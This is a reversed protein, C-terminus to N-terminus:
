TRTEYKIGIKFMGVLKDRLENILYPAVIDHYAGNNHISVRHADHCIDKCRNFLEREM